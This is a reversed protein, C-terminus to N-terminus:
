STAKLISKFADLTATLDEVYSMHGSGKLTFLTVMESIEALEKAEDYPIRPDKDGAM